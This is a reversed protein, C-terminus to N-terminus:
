NKIVKKFYTRNERKKAKSSKIYSTDNLKVFGSRFDHFSNMLNSSNEEERALRIMLLKGFRFIPGFPTQFRLLLKLHVLAVRVRLPLRSLQM